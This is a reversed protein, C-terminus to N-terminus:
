REPEWTVEAQPSKEVAWHPPQRYDDSVTGSYYPEGQPPYVFRDWYTSSGWTAEAYATGDELSISLTDAYRDDGVYTYRECVYQHSYPDYGERYRYGYGPDPLDRLAERTALLDLTQHEESLRTLTARAALEEYERFSGPLDLGEKECYERIARAYGIDLAEPGQFHTTGGALDVRVAEGLGVENGRCWVEM